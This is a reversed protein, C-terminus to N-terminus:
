FHIQTSIQSTTVMGSGPTSKQTFIYIMDVGESIGYLLNVQMTTQSNVPDNLSSVDYSGAVSIKQKFIMFLSDNLSLMGHVRPYGAKSAGTTELSNEYSFAINAFKFIDLGLEGYYGENRIGSHDALALPKSTEYYNSFYRPIFDTDMNRYEARYKLIWADGTFGTTWGNGRLENVFDWSTVMLAGDAYWRLWKGLIPQSLDAGAIQVNNKPGTTLTPGSNLDTALTFGMTFEDFFPVQIPRFFPRIGVVSPSLVNNLLTEFGWTKMDLDFELGINRYGGQMAALTLNSYRDVIFGQGLTAEMINGLRFYLPREGKEAWQLYLILNAWDNATWPRIGTTDNWTVSLNLAAKLKGFKMVPQVAVRYYMMGDLNVAGIMGDINFAKPGKPKDEKKEEKKEEKKGAKEEEKAEFMDKWEKLEDGTLERLVGQNGETTVAFVRGTPVMTTWMQGNTFGVAEIEGEVVYINGSNDPNVVIGFVTGRIGAIATPTIVKFDGKQPSAKAWLKGSFLKFISNKKKTDANEDLSQIELTANDKLKLLSGDDLQMEARGDKKTIVKDGSGLAMGKQAAVQQASGAKLVFVEGKTFTISAQRLSASALQGPVATEQASVGLAFLAAALVMGVAALRKM